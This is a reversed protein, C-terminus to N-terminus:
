GISQVVRVCNGLQLTVADRAFVEVHRDDHCANLMELYVDSPKGTVHFVDNLTGTVHYDDLDDRASCLVRRFADCISPVSVNAISPHVVDNEIQHSVDSSIM